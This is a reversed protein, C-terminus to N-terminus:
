KKQSRTASLQCSIIMIDDFNKKQEVTIFKQKILDLIALFSMIVEHKSKANKLIEKFSSKKRKKFMNQIEFVKEEVTIRKEFVKEQTEEEEKVTSLIQQFLTFLNGLSVGEPPTFNKSKTFHSWKKSFSRRDKELLEKLHLSAEKYRRYERLREELEEADKEEEETKLHPLLVKSKIYLLTASIVLFEVLEEESTKLEKIAVLFEDTIKALAIQTIDLKEKEILQLLLNLPGVFQETQIKFM